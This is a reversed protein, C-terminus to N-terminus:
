KENNLRELVEVTIDFEATRFYVAQSKLLLGINKEDIIDNVIKEITPALDQEVKAAINNRITSEQQGLRNLRALKTQGAKVHKQKKEDSWTLSQTEGEKQLAQLEKQLDKIKSVLKKYNSDSKLVQYQQRSYNSAALAGKLNIVGINGQAFANLGCLYLGVFFVVKVM